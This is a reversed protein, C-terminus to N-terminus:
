AKVTFIDRRFLRFIAQPKPMAANLRDISRQDSHVDSCFHLAYLMLSLVNERDNENPFKNKIEFELKFFFDGHCSIM